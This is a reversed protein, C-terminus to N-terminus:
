MRQRKRRGKFPPRYLINAITEDPARLEKISEQVRQETGDLKEQGREKATEKLQKVLKSFDDQIRDKARSAEIEVLKQEHGMYVGSVVFGM